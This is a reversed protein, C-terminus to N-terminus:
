DNSKDELANEKKSNSNKPVFFEIIDNRSINNARLLKGLELDATLQELSVNQSKVYDFKELQKLEDIQKLIEKKENTLNKISRDIETVRENLKVLKKENKGSM